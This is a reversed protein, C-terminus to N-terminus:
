KKSKSKKSKSKKSKSKKSKSKKSKSKKSKIKKSKSKKSKIKKSKSKKSKKGGKINGGSCESALRRFLSQQLDIITKKQKLYESQIGDINKNKNYKALNDSIIDKTTKDLKRDYCKKKKYYYNELQLVINNFKDDDIYYIDKNSINVKTFINDNLINDLESTSTSNGM